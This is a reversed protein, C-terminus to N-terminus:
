EKKRYKIEIFIEKTIFIISLIIFTIILLKVDSEKKVIIFEYVYFVAILIIEKIIISLIRQFLSYKKIYDKMLKTKEEKSPHEKIIEKIKNAEQETKVFIMYPWTIGKEFSDNNIHSFKLLVDYNDIYKKYYRYTPQKKILFTSVSLNETELFYFYKKISLTTRAYLIRFNTIAYYHTPTKVLIKKFPKCKQLIIFILAFIILGFITEYMLKNVMFLIVVFIYIIIFLALLMCLFKDLFRWHKKQNGFYLIKEDQVLISNFGKLAEEENIMFSM